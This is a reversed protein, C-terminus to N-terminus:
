ATKDLEARVVDREHPMKLETFLAPAQELKQRAAQKDGQQRGLLGWQGYYSGLRAAM